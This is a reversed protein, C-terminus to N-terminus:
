WSEVVERKSFSLAVLFTEQFVEEADARNGLLRYVRRWLGQGERAVIGEWDIM